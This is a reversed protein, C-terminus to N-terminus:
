RKEIAIIFPPNNQQNLFKYELVHVDNQDLDKVYRLLYDREVAGERHGHYIVLVIIGEPKLMSILQDIASITTRPRTVITKDGGPLYGLNFVAGAIRGHHVPPLSNMVHEHGKQFLTVRHVLQHEELKERTALVASEQVDFGYVRGNEGVLQSLFLTDHGNGITADVAIDGEAVAQQLLARAFPLVRELKM